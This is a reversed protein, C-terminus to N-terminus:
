PLNNIVSILSAENITALEDATFTIVEDAQITEDKIAYTWEGNHESVLIIHCELGVPIQGYHESFLGTARDYKDLFALAHPKGNYSIYVACNSPNYDLPVDVYLTTKPRSDTYFRDISTWGFNQSLLFYDSGEIFVGNQENNMPNENWVINDDENITGNWLTMGNDPGGTLSGPVTLQYGCSTELPESGQIANLNFVGGSLLLSINSNGTNGMTPKHCTLMHGRNFIEAYELSATGTITEGNKTLCSADFTITTGNHTTLTVLGDKTNFSFEQKINNFATNRLQAFEKATPAPPGIPHHTDEGCCSWSWFLIATIFLKCIFIANKM